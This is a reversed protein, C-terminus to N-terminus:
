KSNKKRLDFHLMLTHELASKGPGQKLCQLSLRRQKMMEKDSLPVSRRSFNKQRKGGDTPSRSRKVERSGGSKQPKKTAKTSSQKRNKIISSNTIRSTAENAMPLEVLNHGRASEESDNQPTESCIVIHENIEPISVL